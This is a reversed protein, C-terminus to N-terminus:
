AATRTSILLLQFLASQGRSRAAERTKERGSLITSGSHDCLRWEWRFLGTKTITMEFM